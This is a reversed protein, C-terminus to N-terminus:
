AIKRVIVALEYEFLEVGTNPDSRVVGVQLHIEPDNESAIRKRM